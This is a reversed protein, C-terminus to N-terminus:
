VHARGIEGFGDPIQERSEQVRENVLQRAFYIDTNDEFYLNVISLGFNSTSRVLKLKPLGSMAAEVPFTVYKEIEEPSYGESVTFVQVVTPSVDPFADIPLKNYSLYGAGLVLIGLVAMLFRNKLVFQIIKKM